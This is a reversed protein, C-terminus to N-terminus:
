SCARCPQGHNYGPKYIDLTLKEGDATSFVREELRVPRSQVSYVLDYMVLPERGCTRPSADADRARHDRLQHRADGAPGTNMQNAHFIPLAFLAAAGLGM